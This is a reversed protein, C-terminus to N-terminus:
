DVASFTNTTNDTHTALNMQLRVYKWPKKDLWELSDTFAM